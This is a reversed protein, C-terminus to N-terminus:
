ESPQRRGPSVRVTVGRLEVPLGVFAGHREAALQLARREKSSLRTLLRLELIVADRTVTRKWGGVLQGDIAVVYSILADGGTILEASKLRQAFATRDRLGIFLEDYNPLLFAKPSGKRPVDLVPDSWYSRGELDARELAAGAIDTGRRADAVTLGSWWAFDNLTAPGRTTFYRVTLDLLAEDRGKLPTPPAREDLLAYTFQKGRRPGSCIIGDLEAHLLVHALRQTGTVDIGVRRLAQAIEARTLYTRDRLARLLAANSRRFVTEDLELKRDYSAMAAKVRPGTLALMWRIDAPTVFHWTPRLVHTRLITGETLSREITADTAGKTRLGLGWKAGGYDQAQVAGLRHVVGVPDALTPALLHQGALRQKVIELYGLRGLHVGRDGRRGRDGRLFSSMHKEDAFDHVALRALNARHHLLKEGHPLEVLLRAEAFHAHHRIEAGLSVPRDHRLELHLAHLPELFHHLARPDCRLQRLLEVVDHLAIVIEDFVAPALDVLDLSLADGNNIAPPPICEVISFAAEAARRICGALLTLYRM